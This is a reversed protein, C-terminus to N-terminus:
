VTQCIFKLEAKKLTKRSRLVKPWYLRGAQTWVPIPVAADFRCRMKLIEPGQFWFRRLVRDQEEGLEGNLLEVRRVDQGGMEMEVEIEMETGTETCM